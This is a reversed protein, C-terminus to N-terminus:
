EILLITDSLKLMHKAAKRARYPVSKDTYTHTLIARMIQLSKHCDPVNIEFFESKLRSKTLDRGETKIFKDPSTNHNGGFLFSRSFKVVGNAPKDYAICAVPDGRHRKLEKLLTKKDLRGSEVLRKLLEESQKCLTNKSPERIYFFKTM